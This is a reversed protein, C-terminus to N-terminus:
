NEVHFVAGRDIRKARSRERERSRGESEVRAGESGGDEVQSGLGRAQANMGVYLWRAAM